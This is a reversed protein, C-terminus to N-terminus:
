RGISNSNQYKLLMTYFVEINEHLDKLTEPTETHLLRVEFIIWTQWYIGLLDDM